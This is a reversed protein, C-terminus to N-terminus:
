YYVQFTSNETQRKALVLLATAGRASRPEEERQACTPPPAGCPKEGHLFGLERLRECQLAVASSSLCRVSM